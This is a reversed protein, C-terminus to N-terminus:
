HTGSPPGDTDPGATLATWHSNSEKPAQACRKAWHPSPRSRRAARFPARVLAMDEATLGYLEFVLGDIHRDLTEIRRKQAVRDRVLVLTALDRHLALM